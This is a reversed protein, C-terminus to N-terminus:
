AQISPFSSGTGQYGCQCELNEWPWDYYWWSGEADFASMVVVSSALINSHPSDHAHWPNELQSQSPLVVLHRHHPYHTFGWTKLNWCEMEWKGAGRWAKFTQLVRFVRNQPIWVWPSWVIQLSLNLEHQEKARHCCLFNFSFGFINYFHDTTVELRGAWSSELFYMSSASKAQPALNAPHSAHPSHKPLYVYIYMICISYIPTSSSHDITLRIPQNWKLGTSAITNAGEIKCYM